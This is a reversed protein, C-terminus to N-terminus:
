RGLADISDWTAQVEPLILRSRLVSDQVLPVLVSDVYTRFDAPYNSRTARWFAGFYPHRYAGSQGGIQSAARPPITGLDIQRFRNEAVRMVSTYWWDLVVRDEPTMYRLGIATRQYAVRLERQEVVLQATAISQDAIAQLTAGRTAETGQRIEYAVLLLSVMVGLAPLIKQLREL